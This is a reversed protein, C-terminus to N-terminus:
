LQGCVLKRQAEQCYLCTTQPSHHSYWRLIGRRGLVRPVPWTALPGMQCLWPGLETQGGRLRASLRVALFAQGAPPFARSQGSRLLPCTGSEM